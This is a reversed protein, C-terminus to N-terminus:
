NEREILMDDAIRRALRVLHNQSMVNSQDFLVSVGVLNPNACLGTLAAIIFRDRLEDAEARTLAV